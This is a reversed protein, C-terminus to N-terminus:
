FTDAVKEKVNQKYVFFLFTEFCKKIFRSLRSIAIVNRNSRCDREQFTIEDLPQVWDLQIGIAPSTITQPCM